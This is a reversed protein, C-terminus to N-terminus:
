LLIEREGSVNGIKENTVLMNKKVENIKTM